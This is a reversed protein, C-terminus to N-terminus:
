RPRALARAAADRAVPQGPGRLMQAASDRGWYGLGREFEEAMEADGAAGPISGSCRACRSRPARAPADLAYLDLRTGARWPGAGSVEEVDHRTAAIQERHFAPLMIRRARRHYDGGTTLLGDGLLPILDGM